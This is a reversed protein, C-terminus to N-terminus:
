TSPYKRENLERIRQRLVENFYVVLSPDAALLDAFSTKTVRWVELETLAVVTAYRPEDTLLAMEGFGEQPGLQAIPMDTGVEGKALVQADGSRIM